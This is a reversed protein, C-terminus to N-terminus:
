AFEEATFSSEEFQWNEQVTLSRELRPFNGALVESVDDPEGYAALIRHSPPLFSAQVQDIKENKGDYRVFGAPAPVRLMVGGIKVRASQGRAASLALLLLLLLRWSM